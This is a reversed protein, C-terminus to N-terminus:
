REGNDLRWMILQGGSVPPLFAVEDGEQLETELQTYELNVAAAPPIGRLLPYQERLTQWVDIVRSGPKVDLTLDRQGVWERYAAFLRVQIRM